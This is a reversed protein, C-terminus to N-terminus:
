PRAGRTPGLAKLDVPEIPALLDPPGGGDTPRGRGLQDVDMDNGDNGDIISM